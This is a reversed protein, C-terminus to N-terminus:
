CRLWKRGEASQDYNLLRVKIAPNSSMLYEPFDKPFNSGCIALKGTDLAGVLVRITNWHDYSEKSVILVNPSHGYVAVGRENKSNFVRLDRKTYALGPDIAIECLYPFASTKYKHM